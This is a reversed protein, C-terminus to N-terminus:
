YRKLQHVMATLLLAGNNGPLLAGSIQLEKSPDSPHPISKRVREPSKTSAAFVYKLERIVCQLDDERAFYDRALVSLNKSKFQIEKQLCCLVHGMTKSGNNNMSINNNNNDDDNNDNWDPALNQVLELADLIGRAFEEFQKEDGDDNNGVSQIIDDFGERRIVDFDTMEGTDPCSLSRVSTKKLDSADFIWSRAIPAIHLSVDSQFVTSTNATAVSRASDPEPENGADVLKLHTVFTEVFFAVIVNLLICVAVIVLLVFYLYVAFPSSFRDAYLFVNAIQHWDNVVLVNFVTICGEGYSNFNNLYYLYQVNENSAQEEVDVAGEWLAMGVYVFIHMATLILFIPGALFPLVYLSRQLVERFWISFRMSQIMGIARGILLYELGNEHGIALHMVMGFLSVIGGLCGMGDLVANIRTIPNIRYKFQWPNYRLGMECLTLLTIISGMVFEKKFNREHPHVRSAFIMVYLFNVIAVSISLIEVAMGLASHTRTTRVSSSLAQQIRNRFEGYGISHKNTDTDTHTHTGDDGGLGARQLESSNEFRYPVIIETLVDLKQQNYHPRLLRFAECILRVDVVANEDKSL